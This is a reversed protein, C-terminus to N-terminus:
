RNRRTRYSGYGSYINVGLRSGFRPHHPHHRQGSSIVGLMEADCLGEARRVSWGGAGCGDQDRTKVLIFAGVWSQGTSRSVIQIGPLAEEIPVLVESPEEM